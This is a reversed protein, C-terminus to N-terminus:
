SSQQAKVIKAEDAQGEHWRKCTTGIPFRISDADRDVLAVDLVSLGQLSGSM